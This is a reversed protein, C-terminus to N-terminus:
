LLVPIVATKTRNAVLKKMYVMLHLAVGQDSTGYASELVAQAIIPSVVAIHYSPAFKIIYPAIQKIFEKAGAM